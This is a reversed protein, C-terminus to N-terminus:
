AQIEAAAEERAVELLQIEAEDLIRDALFQRVDLRDVELGAARERLFAFDDDRAHEVDPALGRAADRLDDHVGADRLQRQDARVRVPDEVAAAVQVLAGRPDEAPDAHFVVNEAGADVERVADLDAIQNCEAISSSVFPRHTISKSTALFPPSRDAAPPPTGELCSPPM